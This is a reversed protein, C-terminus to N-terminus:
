RAPLTFSYSNQGPQLRYRTFDISPSKPEDASDKSQIRGSRMPVTLTQYRAARGEFFDNLYVLGWAASIAHDGYSNFIDGDRIKDRAEPVLDFGTILIDRGPKLGLEYVANAASLAMADNAAWIIRIDPYRQKATLTANHAHAPDYQTHFIQRIQVKDKFDVLTDFMGLLRQSGSQSAARGELVIMPIPRQLPFQTLAQEFLERTLKQSAEYNGVAIQGLWFQYHEGPRGMRDKAPFGNDYIVSYIRHKELLDLVAKGTNKINPFIVADPKRSSNILASLARVPRLPNGKISIVKLEIGLDLAAKDALQQVQNWFPNEPNNILLVVQLPVLRTAPTDTQTEAYLPKSLSHLVLTLFLLSLLKLRLPFAILGAWGAPLTQANLGPVSPLFLAILWSPYM